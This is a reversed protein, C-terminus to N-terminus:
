RGRHGGLRQAARESGGTQPTSFGPRVEAAEERMESRLAAVENEPTGVRVDEAGAAQAAKAAEEAAREDRFVGVLRDKEEDEAM